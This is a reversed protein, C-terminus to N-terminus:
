TARAPRGRNLTLAAPRATDIRFGSAVLFGIDGFEGVARAVPIGARDMAVALEDILRRGIGLGRCGPAVVVGHLVVERRAGSREISAQWGPLDDYYPREGRLYARLEGVVQGDPLEAVWRWAGDPLDDVVQRLRVASRVEARWRRRDRRGRNLDYTTSPVRLPWREPPLNYWHAWWAGAWDKPHKVERLDLHAPYRRGAEDRKGEHPDQAGDAVSGSGILLTGRAARALREVTRFRPDVARGSEIRAVTSPPVGARQALERQSLDAQRRMARLAASLSLEQFGTV